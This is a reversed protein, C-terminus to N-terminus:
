GKEIKGKTLASKPVPLALGALHTIRQARGEEVEKIAALSEPSLGSEFPLRKLKATQVIAMRILDSITLGYELLVAAATEKDARMVRARVDTDTAMDIREEGFYLTAVNYRYRVAVVLLNEGWRAM